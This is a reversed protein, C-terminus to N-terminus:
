RRRRRQPAPSRPRRRVRAALELRRPMTDVAVVSAGQGVLLQTALLGIVGQGFVAVTEGLYAGAALVANLAVAGVRAFTGVIPDLGTPLVTGACGSPRCSPRARHGWIGWVVDGVAADTM